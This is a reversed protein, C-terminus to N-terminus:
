CMNWHNTTVAASIFMVFPSYTLEYCYCCLILTDGRLNSCYPPRPLNWSITIYTRWHSDSRNYSIGLSMSKLSFFKLVKHHWYLEVNLCFLGNSAHLRVRMDLDHVWDLSIKHDSCINLFPTPLTGWRKRQKFSRTIFDLPQTLSLIILFYYATPPM